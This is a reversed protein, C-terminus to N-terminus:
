VCKYVDIFHYGQSSKRVQIKGRSILVGMAALTVQFFWWAAFQYIAPSLGIKIEVKRGMSINCSCEPQLKQCSLWWVRCWLCRWAGQNRHSDGWPLWGSALQPLTARTAARCLAFEVLVSYKQPKANIKWRGLHWSGVQDGAAESIRTTWRRAGPGWFRGFVHAFWQFSVIYEQFDM